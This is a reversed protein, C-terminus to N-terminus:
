RRLGRSIPLATISKIKQMAFRSTVNKLPVAHILKPIVVRLMYDVDGADPLTGDGLGAQFNNGSWGPAIGHRLGQPRAIAVIQGLDAFRPVAHQCVQKHM